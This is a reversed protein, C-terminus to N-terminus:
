RILNRVPFFGNAKVGALFVDGDIFYSTTFSNYHKPNKLCKNDFDDSIVHLHLQRMSPRGHFGM